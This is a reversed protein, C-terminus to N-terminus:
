GMSSFGPLVNEPRKGKTQCANFIRGRTLPTDGTSVRNGGHADVLRLSLSELGYSHVWRNVAECM